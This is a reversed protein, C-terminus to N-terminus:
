DFYVSFHISNATEISNEQKQISKSYKRWISFRKGKELPLVYYVLIIQALIFM